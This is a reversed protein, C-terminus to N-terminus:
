WCHSGGGMFYLFDVEDGEVIETTIYKERIVFQGNVQVSVMDPQEVNNKKILDILLIPAEVEQEKGNVSIKSM